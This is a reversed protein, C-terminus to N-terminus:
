PKAVLSKLYDRSGPAVLIKLIASARSMGIYLAAAGQRGTPLLDLDVLMVLRAELGRFSGIDSIIGHAHSAIGGDPRFTRLIEPMQESLARCVPGEAGAPGLVAIDAPLVGEDLAAVLNILAARAEAEPDAVAEISVKVGFGDIESVGVDADLLAQLVGVIERTSRVNRSLEVCASNAELNTLVRTDPPNTTFQLNPDMFWRWRGAAMGGPLQAFLPEAVHQQAFDQGEDVILTDTGPPINQSTVPIGHAAMRNQLAHILPGGKTVIAPKRGMAQEAKACLVALETKGTGAGGSICLRENSKLSELVNFQRETLVVAQERNHRVALGLPTSATLEPVLINRIAEITPEDLELDEAHRHDFPLRELWNKFLNPNNCVLVDALRSPPLEPLERKFRSLPFVVGWRCRVERELRESLMKELAITASMAQRAPGETSVIAEGRANEYRWVRGALSVIGGKVELLIVGTRDVVVFDAEGWRKYAHDPLNLSHVAFGTEHAVGSLLDYVRSEGLFPQRVQYQPYIHM